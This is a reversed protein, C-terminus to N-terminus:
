KALKEIARTGSNTWYIAGCDQAIGWPANGTALTALGDGLRSVRRVESSGENTWYVYADDVTLSWVNSEGSALTILEQNYGEKLATGISSGAEWFVRDGQLALESVSEGNSVVTEPQEGSGIASLKLRRILGQGPESWYVHTGDVAVGFAQVDAVQVAADQDAGDTAAKWVGGSIDMAWYVYGDGVVIRGFGAEASVAPLVQSVLQIPGGRLPVSRVSPGGYDLFYIRDADAAIQTVFGNDTANALEYRPGGATHTWYLRRGYGSSWVLRDGVVVIGISEADAPSSQLVVKQCAGLVCDGGQCSRGPACCSEPDDPTGAVCDDPASFPPCVM